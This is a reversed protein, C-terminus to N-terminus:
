KKLENMLKGLGVGFNYGGIGFLIMILFYMYPTKIISANFIFEYGLIVFCVVSILLNLRCDTKM